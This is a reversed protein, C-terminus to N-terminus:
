IVVTSGSSFTVARGLAISTSPRRRARASSIPPRPGPASSSSTAACVRLRTTTAPIDAVRRSSNAARSVARARPSSDCSAPIRWRACTSRVWGFCLRPQSWGTLACAGTPYSSRRRGAPPRGAGPLFCTRRPATPSNIPHPSRRLDQVLALEPARHLRTALTVQCSRPDAGCIPAAKSTSPRCSRQPSVRMEARGTFTGMQPQGRSLSARMGARDSACRPGGLHSIRSGYRVRVSM